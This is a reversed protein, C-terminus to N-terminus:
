FSDIKNKRIKKRFDIDRDRRQEGTTTSIPTKHFIRQRSKTKKSTAFIKPASRLFSPRQIIPPPSMVKNRMVVDDDDDNTTRETKQSRKKTKFPIQINTQKFKGM